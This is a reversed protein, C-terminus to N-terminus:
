ENGDDEARALEQPATYDRFNANKPDRDLMYSYKQSNRRLFEPVDPNDEVRDFHEEERDFMDKGNRVRAVIKDKDTFEERDMETHSFSKIKTVMEEVTPFCYSCHWGANFVDAGNHTSRLDDPLITKDLNYYTAQPHAWDARQQWQFGYYYMKTHLTVEQPFDCNRLAKIVDPRPIEDVDSVLIVDGQFAEQEGELEPIVQDYMANRSFAERAWTNEFEVGEIDLTHLIMKHHYKKFKDWNERVYLPKAQDTFTKDSEIIVFYDVQDAMQGMRIELWELETNILM